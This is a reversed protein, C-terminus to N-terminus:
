VSTTEDLVYGHGRHTHILETSQPSVKLKRRLYKIYTEIVNSMGDYNYDWVHDLIQAKSLVKGKNRLLYDLLTYERVTLAITSGNRTVERTSTNISLDAASLIVPLVQPSRRLLARIRALLEDFSFPKSLYDDAGSDLGTVSDAATGRATLLLIPVDSPQHRIDRCVSLGDKKPLMIDLIVLDYSNIEFKDIAEVGDRALDVAYGEEKLGRLLLSAIRPEDEVILIQM